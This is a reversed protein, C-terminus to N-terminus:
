TNMKILRTDNFQKIELWSWTLIKPSDVMKPLTILKTIGM